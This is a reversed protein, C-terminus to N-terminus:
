RQPMNKAGYGLRVTADAPIPPMTTEWAQVMAALREPAIPPPLNTREREDGELNFLYNHGDM